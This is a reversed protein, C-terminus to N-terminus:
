RWRGAEGLQRLGLGVCTGVGVGVAEQRQEAVALPQGTGVREAGLGALPELLGRQGNRAWTGSAHERSVM